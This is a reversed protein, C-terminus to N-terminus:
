LDWGVADIVVSSTMVEGMLLVVLLGLDNFDFDFSSSVSLSPSKGVRLRLPRAVVRAAVLAVSDSMCSISSSRLFLLALRAAAASAFSSPQLEEESAGSLGCIDGSVRLPQGGGLSVLGVGDCLESPVVEDVGDWLPM